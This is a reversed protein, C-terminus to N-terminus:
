LVASCLQFTIHGEKSYTYRLKADLGDLPSSVAPVLLSYQNLSM